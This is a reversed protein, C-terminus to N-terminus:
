PRAVILPVYMEAASLGGHVGILEHRKEGPLVDKITCNDKMLLTYDGIRAGLQPHPTGPGFLGAAVLDASQALVASDSLEDRVCAEFDAHRGPRVYCYAARQEGCLPRALMGALRPYNDLKLSHEPSTDIFGHDATLIVTTGTGALSDLFGGFAEDLAAFKQACQRSSVGFSHAIADFTSYYAYVFKRAPADRVAAAVAPFFDALGDYARREAGATHRVNFESNIIARPSVVRSPIAIRQFLTAYSFLAEARPSFEALPRQDGRTKQPLVAAVADLESFYMHWGTLGHQQPALGTMMTTIATATTSPFVSTLRDHLYSHLVGGAGHSTLYDYGLGDIVILALNACGALAAPGLARAPAYPSHGGCATIISATLNVLSGGNYDPEVMGTAALISDDM